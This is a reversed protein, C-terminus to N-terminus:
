VEQFVPIVEVRSTATNSAAGTAADPVCTVTIVQASRLPRSTFVDSSHPDAPPTGDHTFVIPTSAVGYITCEAVYEATVDVTVSVTEGSRILESGLDVSITPEPPIPPATLECISGNWGSGSACVTTVNTSVLTNGGDRASITNVGYGLTIPEDNGSDNSSYTTSTLSNYVNPNSANNISWTTTGMCDSAGEAIECTTASITATPAICSLNKVHTLLNNPTGNIDMAHLYLDHAGTGLYSSPLTCDFGHDGTIGYTSNIYMRYVDTDCSTVFVGGASMPGDRYIHVEISQSSNDPDYAWGEMSCTAADAGEVVGFADAASAACSSGNWVSGVECSTVIEVTDLDDSGDRIAVTNTGHWLKYTGSGSSALSYTHSNTINRLNPDITNSSSWDIQGDCYGAGTVITCGSGSVSGSPPPPPPPPASVTISVNRTSVYSLVQMRLSINYTGPILPATMYSTGNLTGANSTRYSITTVVGNLTGKFSHAPTSSNTCINNKIQYTGVITEGPSYTTKNTNFTVLHQKAGSSNSWHHVWSIAEVKEVQVGFFGTAVVAFILLTKATDSLKSKNDKSMIILLILLILSVAVIGGLLLKQSKDTENTLATVPEEKDEFLVAIERSDLVTGDAAVLQLSAAPKICDIESPAAINQPSSTLLVSQEAVCTAGMGDVVSVVATVDGNESGGSRSDEFGDASGTWHLTLVVDEKASYSHASFNVTQITAGQGQIVYHIVLKNSVTTSTNSDVLSLVTDYAQPETAKPLVLGLRKEEGATFTITEGDGAATEVKEGYINRQYTAFNPLVTVTKTDYNKVLCSVTIDEETAVDVGQYLNYSVDTEGSVTLECSEPAIAVARSNEITVNGAFGLGLTSGGSTQAVVWLEYVGPEIGSIPYDIGTILSEGARVVLTDSGVLTDVIVQTEEGPDGQKKILEIGYRIDFQPTTGLNELKFSVTVNVDDQSVVTARSINMYSVSDGNDVIQEQALLTVPIVLAIFVVLLLPILARFYNAALM